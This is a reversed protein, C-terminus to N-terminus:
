DAKLSEQIGFVMKGVEHSLSEVETLIKDNGFGLSKAIEIQTQLEYNSGRSVGLFRLYEKTSNRGHGEAINSAVSVGARRMQSTLGYLEDQPFDQTLKYVLIAMKISKQWVVLDRFSKVM